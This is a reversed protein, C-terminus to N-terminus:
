VSVDHLVFVIQKTGPRGPLRSRLFRRITSKASNEDSSNAALMIALRQPRKKENPKTPLPELEEADVSLLKAVKARDEKQSKTLQIIRVPSEDSGRNEGLTEFIKNLEKDFVNELFVVYSQRQKPEVPKKRKSKSPLATLLQIKLPKLAKKLRAITKAQDWCQVDFQFADHKQLQAQLKPWTKLRQYDAGAFELLIDNDPQSQKIPIRKKLPKKQPKNERDVMQDKPQFKENNSAFYSFSTIVVALFMVLAVVWAAWNLQGHSARALLRKGPFSVPLEELSEAPVTPPSPNPPITTVTTPVTEPGSTTTPASPLAPFTGTDLGQEVITNVIRESFDTPLTDPSLATLRRSDSELKKVFMRARRSSGLLSEAQRLEQPSLEGDVYATLLEKHEDSLMAARLVKGFCRIDKSTSM